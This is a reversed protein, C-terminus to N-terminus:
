QGPTIRAVARDRHAQLVMADPDVVIRDPAFDATWEVRVPTRLALTVGTRADRYRVDAPADASFREGRAAAVDIHATGTGVNEVTASVTWAPGSRVLRADRVEFEPLVVRHFWQDVFQEFEAPSVAYARLTEVLDQLAAHDRSGEFRTIFARLGALMPERGIQQHLMWMVWAGKDYIVTEDPARGSATVAVLPREGDVRREDAYRSELGTAFELRARLGHEAELFLMTAYHAMGELLVDSGPAEGPTLLHAWWQHAAEHATVVTPLSAAGATRTLFGMGESFPINAPFGQARTVHDAYESIRLETWPYPRFWESYRRKSAALATLIEDVNYAHGPHFFVAAGDRRRVDWRGAVLSLFRVPHDSAWVVSTRGNDRHEEVKEGVGNVTYESPATVRMRSTFPMPSAGIPPLEGRWADPSVDRPEARNRDDVGIGDVFGPVPLFNTDLTHLVVSSPLIFEPTGGGNRSIGAPVAARYSFGVTVTERPDLPQPLTLVHLGSRDDHSAAQGGITWSVAEFGGGVTFPVQRMAVATDNRMAFTGTVDMRREGPALDMTVDVHTVTAPAVGKWTAVNRRWYDRARAEAARGEHGRDILVSLVFAPAVVLMVTAATVVARFRGRASLPRRPAVPDRETRIYRAIAVAGLGTATALMTLRNLLLARGDLEFAGFDSWRLTGWLPWNAVWTMSGTLVAALTAIMVVFAVVYTVHRRGTLSQVAAVGLAWVAFTPALILGWVQLSPAVEAPAIGQLWLLVLAVSLCGALLVTLVGAGSLVVGGIFAASAVPATHLLGDLRLSRPRDMAEVIHFLLLLCGMATVVEILGVALGGSTLIVQSDFVGRAAGAHELVLSMAFVAFLYLGPQARLQHFEARAVQWAARVLGPPTASMQLPGLPAFASRPAGDGGPVAKSSASTRVRRWPWARRQGPAEIGRVVRHCHRVAGWLLAVPVLLIFVRNAVFPGDVVLGASNYFAVGRDAHFVAQSLWRAGWVDFAAHVPDLLADLPSAPRPILATMTVALLATPVAYVVMVSRTREGLAFAVAAVFVAGPALFVMAPVLYNALAFPGLIADSGILPGLQYWALALVVHTGVLLACAGLVGAFKGAIYEAPTLATSHLLDGIRAEDDNIVSAGALLAIPFTYFLMGTLAFVQAMAYRSNSFPRVGAVAADGSPIMAAPNVALTAFVLLLMLAWFLPSAVLSRWERAAIAAIRTASM